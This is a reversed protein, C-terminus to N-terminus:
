TYATFLFCFRLVSLDRYYPAILQSGNSDDFVRLGVQYSHPVLTLTDLLTRKIDEFPTGADAMSSSNDLIVAVRGEKSACGILFVVFLIAFFSILKFKCL